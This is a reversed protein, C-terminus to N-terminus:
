VMDKITEDYFSWIRDWMRKHSKENWDFDNLLMGYLDIEPMEQLFNEFYYRNDSKHFKKIAIKAAAPNIIWGNQWTVRNPGAFPCVIYPDQTNLIDLYKKIREGSFEKKWMLRVIRQCDEPIASKPYDIDSSMMAIKYNHPIKNGAGKTHLYLVPEEMEISLKLATYIAPYEFLIGPPEQEICLVDHEKEMWSLMEKKIMLGTENKLVGLVALM